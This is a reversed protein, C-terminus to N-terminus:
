RDWKFHTLVDYALKYMYIIYVIKACKQWVQKSLGSTKVVVRDCSWQHDNYLLEVTDSFTTTAM